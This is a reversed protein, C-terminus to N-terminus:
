LVCIKDAEATTKNKANDGTSSHQFLVKEQSTM